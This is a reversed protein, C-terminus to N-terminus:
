KIIKNKFKQALKYFFKEVDNFYNKKDIIIPDDKLESFKILQTGVTLYDIQYDFKIRALKLLENFDFNTKKFIFFLDYYDRGRPNQIITFLKNVAIDKLSDITLYNKEIRKDITEFPFYTLEIKLFNKDDFILQFINRNFSKQFDIKKYNLSNKSKKLISTISVIDIEKESFFDLDESYRHHLYFESLCTGGTLYFNNRLDPSSIFFNLFKKQNSSLISKTM